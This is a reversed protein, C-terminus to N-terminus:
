ESADTAIEIKQPRERFQPLFVIGYIIGRPMREIAPNQIAPPIPDVVVSIVAAATDDHKRDGSLATIRLSPEVQPYLTTILM